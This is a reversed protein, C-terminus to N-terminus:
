NAREQTDEADDETQDAQSDESEIEAQTAESNEPPSMAQFQAIAEAKEADIEALKARAEEESLAPYLKMMADLRTMLGMGRQKEVRALIEDESELPKVDAFEVAIKFDDTFRGLARAEQDLVGSDYMYNHWRKIIEWHEREAKLFVPKDGEIAALNDSMAILQHFGSTFQQVAQAGAISGPEMDNTSLLIGLLEMLLAKYQDLPSNATVYEFTAATGDPSKKLWLAKNIGLIVKKPEDESSIVPQGYGQHKAITLLDSWGMQIAMTLDILDEGQTAWPENDRDKAINVIPKIQIPNLFQTDDQDALRIVNGSEDTTFHTEDQWFIYNRKLDTATEGSAVQDGKTKYGPEMSFSQHGTASPVNHQPTVMGQEIFENFVYTDIKTKDAHEARISYLYPAVVDSKLAQTGDKQPVPRTYIVENSHLSYYRNAKQMLPNLELRQTYFDVLQQNAEGECKRQPAKKYVQSRKNVIKKLLNVPALRMEKLAEPGFERQIQEILFARGGDKFIDHRRKAMARRTKESEGNIEEVIRKIEDQTIPM